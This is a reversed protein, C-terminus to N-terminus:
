QGCVSAFLCSFLLAYGILAAVGVAGAIMTSSIFLRDSPTGSRVLMLRQWMDAGVVSESFEADESRRIWRCALLWVYGLVLTVLITPIMSGISQGVTQVSEIV